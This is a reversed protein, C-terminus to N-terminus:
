AHAIISIDKWKGHFYRWMYLLCAFFSYNVCILTATEISMQERVIFIYIPLVLLIWISCSGAILLFVTDGAATLIGSFLLRIGEFLMYLCILFLCEQLTKDLSVLQSAEITPLFLSIFTHSYFTFFGVITLFFLVHLQIGSRIMTPVHKISKAGILNGCIISTAKSIGEAFFYLLIIVSQSIAAVTIHRSSVYTMMGYFAAWGLIEILSFVAGPLGIRVCQLLAKSKLKIRNTGYLERNKKNLFVAGLVSTQLLSGISTAFVAGTVGLPQIYGEVGFILVYDLCVNVINAAVALTTVLRTKGQGVFFGCLASYVPFVSGFLIMWRFYAKEMEREPSSGYFLDAGFIGFPIFFLLSFLSLWLMQWVPEGLKSHRGAGYYQAVFVEAISTLVMWSYIFSWAFTSANAAANLADTSYHALLLRDVFVMTMVSLSSLMLPLAIKSLERFSGPPYETLAM